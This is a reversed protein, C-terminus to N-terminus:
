PIDVLFPAGAPGFGREATEVGGGGGVFAAVQFDSDVAARVGKGVIAIEVYSEGGDGAPFVLGQGGANIGACGVDVVGVGLFDRGGDEGAIGGGSVAEVKGDVGVVVAVFGEGNADGGDVAEPPVVAGTIGRGGHMHQDLVCGHGGIVVSSKRV